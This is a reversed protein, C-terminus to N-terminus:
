CNESNFGRFFLRYKIKFFCNELILILESRFISNSILFLLFLLSSYIYPFNTFLPTFINLYVLPIIPMAQFFIILVYYINFFTPPFNFVLYIIDIIITNRTFKSSKNNNKNFRKISNRLWLIVKIDLISMVFFPVFFQMLVNITETTILIENSMLAVNATFTENGVTYTFVRIYYPSNVVLIAIFMGFIISYLVMKKLMIRYGKVPFVVSVFRDFSIMVKIWAMTQLLIIEIFHETGFPWQVRYLYFIKPDRVIMVYVFAVLNVVCLLAYLKSTNTNSNFCPRTFIVLSILNGIIGISIITTVSYKLIWYSIRINNDWNYDYSSDNSTSSNM